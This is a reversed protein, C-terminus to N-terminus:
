FSSAVPPATSRRCRRGRLLAAICDESRIAAARGVEACEERTMPPPLLRGGGGGGGGGCLSSVVQRQAVYRQLPATAARAGSKDSNGRGPAFPVPVGERRLLASASAGYLDLASDVLLHARTWQFSSGEGAEAIIEEAEMRKRRSGAGDKDAEARRDSWPTLIRELVKLMGRAAKGRRDLGDGDPSDLLRTAERYTLGVPSSILTPEVGADLLRGSREDM